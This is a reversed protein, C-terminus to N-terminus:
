GLCGAGRTGTDSNLFQGITITVIGALEPARLLQTLLGDLSDLLFILPNADSFLISIYELRM